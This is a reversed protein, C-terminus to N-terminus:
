DDKLLPFGHCGVSGGVLRGLWHLGLWRLSLAALRGSLGKEQQAGDEGDGRDQEPQVLEDLHQGRPLAVQRWLDLSTGPVACWAMSM